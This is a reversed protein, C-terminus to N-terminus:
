FIQPQTNAHVRINQTNTNGPASPTGKITQWVRTGSREGAEEHSGSRCSIQVCSCVCVTKYRYVARYIMLAGLFNAEKMIGFSYALFSRFHGMSKIFWKQIFVDKSKFHIVASCGMPLCPHNSVRRQLRWNVQWSRLRWSWDRTKQQCPNKKMWCLRLM